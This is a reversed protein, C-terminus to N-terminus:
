KRNKEIFTKFYKHRQKEPIHKPIHYDSFKNINFENECEKCIIFINKEVIFVGDYNSDFCCYILSQDNYYYNVVVGSVFDGCNGCSSKM